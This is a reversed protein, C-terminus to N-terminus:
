ENKIEKIIGQYGTCRCINGSIAERIEEEDPNKKKKYLTYLSVLMGNECFGCQFEDEIKRKIKKFIKKRKIGEITLINKGSISGVPILCSNMINGDVLVMCSGCEGEGCGEKVSKINLELRLLDLLRKLPEVDLVIKKNNLNFEIKM